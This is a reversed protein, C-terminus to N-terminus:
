RGAAAHRGQPRPYGPGNVTVTGSMGVGNPGGHLDCYYRYMGPTNFTRSVVWASGVAFAPM